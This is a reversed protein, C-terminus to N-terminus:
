LVVEGVQASGGAGAWSRGGEGRVGGQVAFSMLQGRQEVGLEGSIGRGRARSEEKNGGGREGM